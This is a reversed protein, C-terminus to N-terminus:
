ACRAMQDILQAGICETYAPPIAERIEPWTMWDIGMAEQAQALTHARNMGKSVQPHDGYVGITSRSPHCSCSPVLLPFNTEFLRHRRVGLGFTSGCLRYPARMAGRADEVNEIIYPLRTRELRERIVGILLPSDVGAGKGLRRLGSYGQCPPSAHIVVFDALPAVQWRGTLLWDLVEVADLQWFEFPYNPQPKHDVGVISFGARAYGMACGGAGCFLDLLKM